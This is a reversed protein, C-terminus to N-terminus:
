FELLRKTHESSYSSKMNIKGTSLNCSMGHVIGDVDIKNDGFLTNKVSTLEKKYGKYRESPILSIQIGLSIFLLGISVLFLSLIFSLVTLLM